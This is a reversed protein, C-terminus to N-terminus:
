FNCVVKEWVCPTLETRMGAPTVGGPGGIFEFKSNGGGIAAGFGGGNGEPSKVGSLGAGDGVKGNCAEGEGEGGCFRGRGWFGGGLGFIISIAKVGGWPMLETTTEAPDLACNIPTALHLLPLLMKTKHKSAHTPSTAISAQNKRKM